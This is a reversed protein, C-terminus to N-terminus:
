ESVIRITIRSTDVIFKRNDYGKYNRRVDDIIALTESKIKERIQEVAYEASSITSPSPKNGLGIVYKVRGSFVISISAFCSVSCSIGYEWKNYNTDWLMYYSKRIIEDNIANKIPREGAYDKRNDTPKDDITTTANKSQSNTSTVSKQTQTKSLSNAYAQLDAKTIFPLGERKIWFIMFAIELLALILPVYYFFSGAANGIYTFIVGVFYSIVLSIVPIFPLVGENWVNDVAFYFLVFSTLAGLLWLNSIAFLWPSENQLEIRSVYSVATLYSILGTTLIVLTGLIFLVIRIFGIIKSVAEGLLDYAIYYMFTGLLIMSGSIGGSLLSEGITPHSEYIDGSGLTFWITVFIAIGLGFNILARVWKKELFDM